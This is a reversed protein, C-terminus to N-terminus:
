YIKWVNMKTILVEGCHKAAVRLASSKGCFKIQFIFTRKVLLSNTTFSVGGKSYSSNGATIIKEIHTKKYM